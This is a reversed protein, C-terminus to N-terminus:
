LAPFLTSKVLPKIRTIPIVSIHVLTECLNIAINYQFLFITRLGIKIRM